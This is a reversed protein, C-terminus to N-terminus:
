GSCRATARYVRRWEESAAEATRDNWREGLHAPISFSCRACEIIQLVSSWPDKEDPITQVMLEMGAEVSGCEPCLFSKEAM